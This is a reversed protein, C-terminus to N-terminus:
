PSAALHRAFFATVEQISDAWAIPDGGTTAGRGGPVRPNMRQAVYRVPASNDFAHHAGPYVKISVPYGGAQAAAALKRCPEAPTWDDKEGILIHLPALARYVGTGNARWSGMRFSCDPYFAIAAAFGDRREASEAVNDPASMAVLTSSGGHSGGMLGIHGGDVYALTRLYRLAAHADGGRRFVGVEVRKPSPDTCIGEPFGRTSFSDPLIVVYGKSVIERTWRVAAGSSRPGLGSCDHVIVVAPFPGPGEPKSLTAQISEAAGNPSVVPISVAEALAVCSHLLAIVLLLRASM